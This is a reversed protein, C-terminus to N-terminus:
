FMKQSDLNLNQIWFVSGGGRGRRLLERREVQNKGELGEEMEGDAWIAKIWMTRFSTCVARLIKEYDSGGNPTRFNDDANTKKLENGGGGM